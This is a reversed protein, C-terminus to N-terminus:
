SIETLAGTLKFTASVSVVDDQPADEEWSTILYRGEYQEGAPTDFRLYIVTRALHAAKLADQGADGEERLADLSLELGRNTYIAENWGNSDKDTTDAEGVKHAPKLNRQGGVNVYNRPTGSDAAGATDVKLLYEDGTTPTAM